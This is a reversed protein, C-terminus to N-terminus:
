KKQKSLWQFLSEGEIQPDNNLTYFWSYHGSFKYRHDADFVGDYLSIRVDKAGASELRKKTALCNREPKVTTDDQSQVFWIPTNKLQLIKEDTIKSDPYVECTPIAAAFFDKYEILMNMTMYGGASCGGIYIRNKDIYKHSELFSEILNMLYITYYSTTAVKEGENRTDPVSTFNQLFKYVPDTIRNITGEIDFPAWIRTGSSDLSTTELWTTPCQPVLIELGNEFYQQIEPSALNTTKMQMLPVYPNNGGETIGHLWIFLPTGEAKKPTDYYAYTFKMDDEIYFSTKFKTAPANVIGAMEYITFDLEDNEIKYGYFNNLNNIITKSVPSADEVNPGSELDIRIYQSDNEVPTGLENSLTVNTVKREGKKIGFKSSNTNESIRVVTIEFDEQLIEEPKYKKGTNIVLYDVSSGWDYTNVYSVFQNENPICKESFSIANLSTASILLVSSLFVKIKNFQM